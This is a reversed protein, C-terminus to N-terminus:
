RYLQVQDFAVGASNGPTVVEVLEAAIDDQSAAVPRTFFFKAFAAVPVGNNSGGTLPLHPPLTAKCNVIAAHFIRRDPTDNPTSSSCTPGGIEPNGPPPAAAQGSPNNIVTTGQAIEYRYVEYRSPLNANSATAGNVIPKSQLGGGPLTHNVAWYADFDWNGDGMRGGMNPCTNTAFCNDDPLGRFRATDANVSANCANGAYSYGKRVNMSPRFNVDNRSSNLPGEYIDFRVNVAARVSAIYGPQTDVGNQVFCAQPSVMAIADRLANAGTGLPSDLFGYNGPSFQNDGGGSGGQRMAILRRKTAPTGVATLLAQTAQAYSMTGDPSEYPNCIFMPVMKCVTQDMGAVASANGTVTSPGGFFAAPLITPITTPTVVVEIFRALVAQDPTCGGASCLPSALPENDSPPLSTRFNVASVTVNTVGGTGFISSNTVLNNVANFARTTSNPLRDLEAAGAIALADAGKQLQSQLSMYRSGDIALVGAGVLVVLMLTVYPLIIGDTDQWLARAARHFHALPTESM